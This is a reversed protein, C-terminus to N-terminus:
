VVNVAYPLSSISDNVLDIFILQYDHDNSDTMSFVGVSTQLNNEGKQVLYIGGCIFILIGIVIGLKKKM